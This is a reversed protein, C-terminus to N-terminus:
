DADFKSAGQGTSAGFFREARAMADETARRNAEVSQRTRGPDDFDHQAGPYVVVELPGGAARSRTALRECVIPSVEEDASGLLVLVVAYPVYRGEVREMGCGPYLVLAARFGSAPTPDRIGPAPDSMAVLATMAGNSWGQLGVRDAVV